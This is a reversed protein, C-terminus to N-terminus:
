DYVTCVLRSNSLIVNRREDNLRADPFRDYAAIMINETTLVYSLKSHAYYDTSLSGVVAVRGAADMYLEGKQDSLRLPQVIEDDGRLQNM